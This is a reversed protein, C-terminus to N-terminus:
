HTIHLRPFQVPVIYNARWLKWHSALKREKIIFYVYKKKM